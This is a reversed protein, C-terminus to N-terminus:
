RSAPAPAPTRTVPRGAQSALAAFATSDAIAAGEQDNNFYVYVDQGTAPWADTLRDVWHRLSQEGYSPWPQAAGEHLRLYGWDATRWLPAIPRSKRDAWCLAAGHTTLV